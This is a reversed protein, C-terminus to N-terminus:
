IVQFILLARFFNSITNPHTRSELIELLPENINFFFFGESVVLVFVRQKTQYVDAM